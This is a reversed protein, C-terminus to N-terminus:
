GYRGTRASSATRWGLSYGGPSELAKQVEPGGGHTTPTASIGPMSRRPRSVARTPPTPVMFPTFITASSSVSSIWGFNGRASTPWSRRWRWRIGSVRLAEEMEKKETIDQQISLYYAIEGAANRIPCISALAWFLEGNKRRNCIEGAWELGANACRWIEAYYEDSHIGSGV